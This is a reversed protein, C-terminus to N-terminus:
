MESRRFMGHKVEVRLRYEIEAVLATDLTPPIPWISGDLPVSVPFLVQFPLQQIMAATPGSVWLKSEQHLFTDGRTPSGYAHTPNEHAHLTLHSTILGIVQIGM